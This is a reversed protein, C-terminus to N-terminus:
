GTRLPPIGPRMCAGPRKGSTDLVHILDIVIHITVGRGAAEARILTLQHEAGDVLVV